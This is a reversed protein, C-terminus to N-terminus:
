RLDPWTHHLADDFRRCPLLEIGPARPLHTIASPPALVRLPTPIAGSTIAEALEEILPDPLDRVARCLDIEGIQLQHSPIPRQIYSSVLALSLPLGLVAHYPRSGPLRCHLAFDLEGMEIGPVGNLCAVLQEIERRPLGPATVKGRAGFGSLAVSAQVEMAGMGRGLFTRAISTISQAHPSPRLTISLPDLELALPKFATPGFRNKTVFLMRYAMSRRLFWVADSNHELARPGAIEGRKTVHSVLVTTINASKCLGTFEYLREYRRTAAASLGHGQISDLVIMQVGHYRGMPNLVHHSLFSPLAEIDALDSEVHLNSFAREVHSKPWQNTMTLARERLRHSPEETMISLTRIGRRNLDLSLQLALGSKFGGPAGGLLYVGGRVVQGSLEDLWGLEDSLPLASLHHPSVDSLRNSPQADRPSGVALAGAPKGVVALGTRPPNGNTKSM